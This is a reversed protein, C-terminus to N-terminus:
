TRAAAMPLDVIFSAGRDPESAVTVAGGLGDVITRVIYLGLGLGGYNRAAPRMQEFPRFIKEQIERAIGIGQDRVVLHALPGGVNSMTSVTIEIPRGKGFKMANSLLNTVVQDLRSRDWRGVVPQEAHISLASGTRALDPALRGAVEHTLEALDVEEFVFPFHGARIRSVDLLENVLRVLRRNEREIIDLMKATLEPKDEGQRLAQVALHLSTIPGRIEHAAISLFEDRLKLVEQGKRYLRANEIALAMRRALEEALELNERGYRRGEAGAFTLAGLLTEHASIPVAMCSGRGDTYILSHGSLVGPALDDVPKRAEDAALSVVRRRGGGEDILDVACAVGVTPVAVRAVAQLANEIDLSALLRSANSLFMAWDLLRMRETVDCFSWVRGVITTGLRQPASRREFVRGDKFRVVDFSEAEPQRYLDRMQALFADPDQLQDVVRAMLEENDTTTSKAPCIRWLSLFRGNYATVKGARDLVLIGEETCELTARLLSISREYERMAQWRDTIDLCSGTASRETVDIGVGTCGVIHRQSDRLPELHIEYCRGRLEYRFSASQGALAARHHAIAADTPDSTGLLESLETGTIARRDLGLAELRGGVGYTIRLDADVAWIFGPIQALLLNLGHNHERAADEVREQPTTEVALVLAGKVGGREDLRPDFRVHFGRKDTRVFDSTRRGQLANELGAVMAPTDRFLQRACHGALEHPCVGFADWGEGQALAIACNQDVVLLLLPIDTTVARVLAQLGTDIGGGTAM